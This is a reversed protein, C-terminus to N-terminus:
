SSKELKRDSGREADGRRLMRDEFVRLRDECWYL